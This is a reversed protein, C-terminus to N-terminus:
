VTARGRGLARHSVLPRSAPATHGPRPARPRPGTSGAPTEMRHAGHDLRRVGAVSVWVYVSHRCAEVDAVPPLDALPVGTASGYTLYLDRLRPTRETHLYPTAGCLPSLFWAGRVGAVAGEPHPPRRRSTPRDRQRRRRRAGLGGGGLRRRHHPYRRRGPPRLGPAGPRPRPAPARVASRPRVRPGGSPAAPRYVWPRGGGGGQLPDARGASHPRISARPPAGWRRVGLPRPQDRPLRPAVGRTARRMPQGRVSLCVRRPAFRARREHPAAAAAHDASPQKKGEQGGREACNVPAAAAYGFRPARMASSEPRVRSCAATTAATVPATRRSEPQAVSLRHTAATAPDPLVRHRTSAIRLTTRRLGSARTSKRLKLRGPPAAPRRGPAARVGPSQSSAARADRPRRPARPRRRRPPTRAPCRRRWWARV